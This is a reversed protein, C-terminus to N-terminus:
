IYDFYENLPGIEEQEEPTLGQYFERLRVVKEEKSTDMDLTREYFRAWAESM